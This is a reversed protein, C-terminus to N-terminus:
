DSVIFSSMQNIYINEWVFICFFFLKVNQILKKIMQRNPLNGMRTLWPLKFTHQSDEKRTKKKEKKKSTVFLNHIM